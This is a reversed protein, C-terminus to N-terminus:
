GYNKISTGSFCQTNVKLTSPITLERLNSCDQFSYVHTYEVGEAFEVSTINTNGHFQYDLDYETGCVKANKGNIYVSDPIYVSTADASAGVAVLHCIHKTVRTETRSEDVYEWVEEDVRPEYYVGNMLYAGHGNKSNNIGVACDFQSQANVITACLLLMLTLFSKPLIKRM